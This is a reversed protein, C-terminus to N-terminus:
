VRLGIGANTATAAPGNRQDTTNQRELDIFLRRIPEVDDGGVLGVPVIPSNSGMAVQAFSSRGEWRLRYEEEKFKGIERGADNGWRRVRSEAFIQLQFSPQVARPTMHVFNM